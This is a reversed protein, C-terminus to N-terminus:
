RVSLVKEPGKTPTLTFSAGKGKRWVSLDARSIGDSDEISIGGGFPTEHLHIRAKSRTDNLDLDGYDETVRIKAAEKDNSGYLALGPGRAEVALRAKTKHAPDLLRFEEASVTCHPQIGYGENISLNLAEKGTAYYLVFLPGTESLALKGRVKQDKDRLIFEQAAISNAQIGRCTLTVAILTVLFLLIAAQKLRHNQGELRELREVFRDLEDSSM